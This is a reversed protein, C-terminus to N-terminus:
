FKGETEPKRSRNKVDYLIAKFLQETKKNIGNIKNHLDYKVFFIVLTVIKFVLSGKRIM